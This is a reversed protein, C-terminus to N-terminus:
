TRRRGLLKVRSELARVKRRRRRRHLVAELLSFDNRETYIIKITIVRM